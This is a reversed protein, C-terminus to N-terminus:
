KREAKLQNHRAFMELTKRSIDAPVDPYCAIGHDRSTLAVTFDGYATEEGRQSDCTIKVDVLARGDEIRKDTVEGSIVQLDGMYNFKRLSDEQGIIIADDGMWDSVCHYMWCERMLGYDYAMKAGVEKAWDDDWHVRFVHDPVGDANPVYARPAIARDQAAIRSAAPRGGSFNWGYGGAHFVMVETSTLPGKQIPAIKDGIKVDEWYRINAGRRKEEKYQADIKSIDDKSWSAKKIEKYKGKDKATKREARIYVIRYVAVVDGNQNFKVDRRVRVGTRGAFESEKVTFSEEGAYSYITDGPRVPRYWTWNSGSIFGHLGKFLGKTKARIDKPIPDGLTIQGIAAGIIGPAVLGGWRSAAAYSEDTYLPNDDGYSRAFNRIADVSATTLYEPYRQALDHGILLQQATVDEDLLVGKTDDAYIDKKKATM